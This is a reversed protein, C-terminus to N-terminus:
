SRRAAMQALRRSKREGYNKRLGIHILAKSIAKLVHAEAPSRSTGTHPATFADVRSASVPTM